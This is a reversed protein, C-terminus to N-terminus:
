PSKGSASAHLYRVAEGTEPRTCEKMQARIKAILRLRVAKQKLKNVAEYGYYAALLNEMKRYDIIMHPPYHLDKLDQDSLIDSAFVNESEVLEPYLAFQKLEMFYYTDKHALLADVLEKSLTTSQFSLQVYRTKAAAIKDLDSPSLDNIELFKIGSLYALFSQKEKESIPGEEPLIMSFPSSRRNKYAQFFAPPITSGLNDFGLADPPNKWIEEYADTQFNMFKDLITFFSCNAYGKSKLYHKIQKIDKAAPNDANLKLQLLLFELSHHRGMTMLNLISRAPELNPLDNEVLITIGKRKDVEEAEQALEQKLIGQEEKTADVLSSVDADYLRLPGKVAPSPFASDTALQPPVPAFLPNGAQKEQQAEELGQVALTPQLDGGIFSAIYERIGYVITGNSDDETVVPIGPEISVMQETERLYFLTRRHAGFGQFFINDTEDPYLRELLMATYASKADCTGLRNQGRSKRLAFRISSSRLASFKEGQNDALAEIKALFSRTPFAPKMPTLSKVDSDLVDRAEEAESATMGMGAIEGSLRFDEFSPTVPSKLAERLGKKLEALAQQDAPRIQRLQDLPTEAWSHFTGTIKSVNARTQHRVAACNVGQYAIWYSLMAMLLTVPFNTQEPLRKELPAYLAGDEWNPSQKEM